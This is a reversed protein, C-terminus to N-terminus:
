RYDLWNSSCYTITGQVKVSPTLLQYASKISTVPKHDIEANEESDDVDQEENEDEQKAESDLLLPQTSGSEVAYNILIGVIM